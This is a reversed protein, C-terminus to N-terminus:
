RTDGRPRVRVKVMAVSVGKDRFLALIEGSRSEVELLYLPDEVELFLVGRVIKVPTCLSALDPFWEKFHELAQYECVKPFLGSKKLYETVVEGLPSPKFM